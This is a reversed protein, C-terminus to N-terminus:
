VGDGGMAGHFAAVASQYEREDGSLFRKVFVAWGEPDAAARAYATQFAEDRGYDPDCATFHAGNPAAVVGTVFPRKVLMTQPGGGSMLEESDVIRECSLYASDAAECFLDDFYPDPGLYQGNGRADARHLHILAADLRLAPVAVLEEGDEYPSAVTRLQPNVRLVDSGLGARVPMFPLRQGAATLGWMFMAEDLETMELTGNQRAARFHPELPISDLTAFPAILRRIKGAAALLGVDPGGCAVVTLDTLESRLLARILAMPKRRSGWGGIGITMGSALRGVAEDATMTKDSM